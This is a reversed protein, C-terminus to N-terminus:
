RGKRGAWKHKQLDEIQVDFSDSCVVSFRAYIFHMFLLVFTFVIQMVLQSTYVNRPKNKLVCKKPM